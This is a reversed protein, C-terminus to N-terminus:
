AALPLDALPLAARQACLVEWDGSLWAARAKATRVAGTVEWQAGPQKLRETVVQKCGSEITGSGILYGAQRFQDYKMRHANNTFYTVAEQAETHRSALPECARIVEAVRGEWLDNTTAELWAEREPSRAWIALAVRKLRDAAHYWDVIQIAHSFYFAVLNWIWAAGDCVFVLEAVRDARAVCGTGWVLKGFVDAEAIDCYYRMKTARLVVQEREFKDRQRTSRQAPPVPEAEYWCGVKMDRWDEHKEPKEGAKARPEIRVKAADLSGYLRAPMPQTERLRAQLYAEDQSQDCLVQEREAQLAGLTQTESRITNESVDFLLFPHLWGRSEDFGFEIGGLSLLAALGSTVAGPELGYQADVPAKGQGCRCGAYYAREYRLRGFVSTITAVRQRQYRLRGGCACAIEAVPTGAGTSLFQSLSQLGVQRLFQRLGTEVDAITLAEGGAQQHGAVAAQFAKVVQQAIEAINETNYDMTLRGYPEIQGM